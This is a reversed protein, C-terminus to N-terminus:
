RVLQLILGKRGAVLVQDGLKDIAKLGFDANLELHESTILSPCGDSKRLALVAGCEPAILAHTDLLVISDASRVHTMDRDRCLDFRAPLEPIQDIWATENPKKRVIINDGTIWIDEGGQERSIVGDSTQMKGLIISRINETRWTGRLADGIYIQSEGGILHPEDSINTEVALRLKSRAGGIINNEPGPRAVFNTQGHERTVVTSVGGVALATGAADFMVGNMDDDPATATGVFVLGRDTLHVEAILGRDQVELVLLIERSGDPRSVPSLALADIRVEGAYHNAFNIVPSPQGAIEGDIALFEGRRALHLAPFTAVLARDAGAIEVFRLTSRYEDDDNLMAVAGGYPELKATASLRCHEEDAPLSLTLLKGLDTALTQDQFLRGEPSTEVFLTRAASPLALHIRANPGSGIFQTEPPPAAIALTIERFKNEVFRSEGAALVDLSLDVLVLREDRDIVLEIPASVADLAPGFATGIRKPKFAGDTVIPFTFSFTEDGSPVYIRSPESCASFAAIAAISPIALFPWELTM